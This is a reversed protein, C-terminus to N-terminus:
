LNGAVLNVREIDMPDLELPLYDRAKAAEAVARRAVDPVPEPSLDDPKFAEIMHKLQVVNLHPFIQEAMEADNVISKDMVLFNVADKIHNLHKSVFTLSKDLKQIGAEVQSLSMKIQFGASCTFLEPRQILSNFLQADIFVFVQKVFQRVLSESLNHKKLMKLTGDFLTTFESVNATKGKHNASSLVSSILVNDLQSFINILLVSYIDFSLMILEYFFRTEPELDAEDEELKKDSLIQTDLDLDPLETRLTKYLHITYSLWYTLTESDYASRAFSKKIANLLASTLDEDIPTLSNWELMSDVVFRVGKPAEDEYEVESAYVGVELMDKERIQKQLSAVNRIRERIKERFNETSSASMPSKSGKDALEAKLKEIEQVQEDIQSQLKTQSKQSADDNEEQFERLQKEVKKLQKELEKSREREKELEATSAGAVAAAAVTTSPTKKIKAMKEELNSIEEEKEEKEEKLKKIKAKLDNKYSEFSTEMEEMQTKLEEKETKERIRDNEAESLKVALTKSKAQAVDGETTLDEIKKKLRSIETSDSGKASGRSFELEKLEEQLQTVKRNLTAETEQSQKLAEENKKATKRLSAADKAETKSKELERKLQELEESLAEVKDELQNREKKLHALEESHGSDGNSVSKGEQSKLKEIEEKLKKKEEGEKKLQRTLEEMKDEIDEKEEALDKMREQLEAMAASDGGESRKGPSKLSDIEERQKEVKKELRAKDKRLDELEAANPMSRESEMKEIKRTLRANDKKLDNLMAENEMSVQSPSIALSARASPAGRMTGTKSPVSDEDPFGDDEEGDSHTGNTESMEDSTQLQYSKGGIEVKEKSQASANETVPVLSKGAVKTPFSEIKIMLTGSKKKDKNLLTVSEHRITNPEAYQLLDIKGKSVADAKKRKDEEMLSFLLEKKPEIKNGKREFSANIQLKEDIPHDKDKILIRKSSLHNNPKKGRKLDIYVEKGNTNAPIDKLSILTITFQVKFANEKNKKKFM